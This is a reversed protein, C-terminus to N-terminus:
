EFGCPYGELQVQEPPIGQMGGLDRLLSNRGQPTQMLKQTADKILAMVDKFQLEAKEVSLESM